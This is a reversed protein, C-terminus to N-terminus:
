VTGPGKSLKCRIDVKAIVDRESGCRRLPSVFMALVSLKDRKCKFFELDKPVNCRSGVKGIVDTESRCKSIFM